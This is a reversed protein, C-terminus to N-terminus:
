LLEYAIYCSNVPMDTCIFMAEVMVDMATLLTDDVFACDVAYVILNFCVGASGADALNDIVNGDDMPIELAM